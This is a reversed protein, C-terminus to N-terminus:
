TVIIIDTVDSVSLVPCHAEPMAFTLKRFMLGAVAPGAEGDGILM